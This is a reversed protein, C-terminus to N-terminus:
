NVPTGHKRYTAKPSFKAAYVKKCIDLNRRTDSTYEDVSWWRRRGDFDLYDYFFFNNRRIAYKDNEFGVIQYRTTYYWKKIGTISNSIYKDVTNRVITVKKYAYIGTVCGVIFEIM